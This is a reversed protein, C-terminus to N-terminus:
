RAIAIAENDAVNRAAQARGGVSADAQGTRNVLQGFQDPPHAQLFDDAFRRIQDFTEADLGREGIGIVVAGGSGFNEADAALAEIGPKVAVAEAAQDAAVILHASDSDFTKSLSAAAGYGM